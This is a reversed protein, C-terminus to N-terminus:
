WAVMTGELIVNRQLKSPNHTKPESYISNLMLSLSVALELTVGVFTCNNSINRHLSEILSECVDVAENNESQADNDGQFRHPAHFKLVRQYLQLSCM